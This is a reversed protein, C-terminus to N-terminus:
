RQCSLPTSTTRSKRRASLQKPEPQRLFSSPAYSLISRGGRESARPRTRSVPTAAVTFQGPTRIAASAPPPALCVADVPLPDPRRGRARRGLATRPGLGSAHRARFPPPHGPEQSADDGGSAEQRVAVREG